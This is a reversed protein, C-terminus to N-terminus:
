STRWWRMGRRRVFNEAMAGRTEETVLNETLTGDHEETLYGMTPVHDDDDRIRRSTRKKTIVGGRRLGYSIHVRSGSLVVDEEVVEYRRSCAVCVYASVRVCM